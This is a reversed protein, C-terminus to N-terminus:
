KKKTYFLQPYLDTITKVLYELYYTYAEEAHQLPIQISSLVYVVHHLLEHMLCHLPFPTDQEKLLFIFSYEEGNHIFVLHKGEVNWETVINPYHKAMYQEM